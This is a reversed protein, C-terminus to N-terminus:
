AALVTEFTRRGDAPNARGFRAPIEMRAESVPWLETSFAKIFATCFDNNLNQRIPACSGPSKASIPEFRHRYGGPQQLLLIVVREKFGPTLHPRRQSL